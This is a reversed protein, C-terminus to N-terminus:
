RKRASELFTFLITEMGQETKSEDGDVTTTAKRREDVDNEEDTWRREYFGGEPHLEYGSFLPPSQLESDYMQCDRWNVRYAM